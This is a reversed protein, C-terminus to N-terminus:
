EEVSKHEASPAERYATACCGSSTPANGAGPPLSPSSQPRASHGRSDPPSRAEQRTVHSGLLYGM